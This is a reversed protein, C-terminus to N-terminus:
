GNLVKNNHEDVDKQNAERAAQIAGDRAEESGLLDELARHCDNIYHELDEIFDYSVESAGWKSAQRYFDIMRGSLGDYRDSM